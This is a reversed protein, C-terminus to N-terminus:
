KQPIIEKSRGIGIRGGICPTTIMYLLSYFNMSNIYNTNGIYKIEIFICGGFVCLLLLM